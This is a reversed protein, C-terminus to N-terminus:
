RTDKILGNGVGRGSRVRFTTGVGIPEPPCGGHLIQPHWRPESRVDAVFDFVKEASAAIHRVNEIM